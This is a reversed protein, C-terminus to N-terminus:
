VTSNVEEIEEDLKKMEYEYGQRLLYQKRRRAFEVEVTDETVLHYFYSQNEGDNPRLIRGLRQAEEQRSGFTGSVQVLVNANPLDVSYNGVKSLIIAKLDGERFKKYTEFRESMPTEGTILPFGFQEHIERLSDLYYGIILVRGDSHQQMIQELAKLKRPNGAAIRHQDRLEASNYESLVSQTPEMRVEICRAPSIWGEDTLKLWPYEYRKPGILSFVDTERGDERVLTATLGLRRRSQIEATARFVPAPLLHVEDYIILGWDARNFLDLHVFQNTEQNRYTLMNYTTLTVPKIEKTDQAYEGVQDEALNTKDVLEEKWQRRATRHTAIILTSANLRDMLGLGVITKGAGCPLLVVGSGGDREEGREYADLAEKQYDRLKCREPDLEVNLARGEDYGLLDVAPWGERALFQKLLGRDSENFVAYDEGIEQPAPLPLPEERDFIGMVEPDDTVMKIRTSRDAPILRIRGYREMQNRIRNELNLDLDTRSQARLWDIIEEPTKGSGAANWLSLDNMEYTHWQGQSQKLSAFQTLESSLERSRDHNSDLLVTGDSQIIIPKAM